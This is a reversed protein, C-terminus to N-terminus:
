GQSEDSVTLLLAPRAARKCVRPLSALELDHAIPRQRGMRILKNYDRINFNPGRRGSAFMDINKNSIAAKHIQLRRSGSQIPARAQHQHWRRNIRLHM